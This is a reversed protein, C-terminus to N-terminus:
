YLRNVMKLLTTKGCGSPGLLVVVSGAYVTLSIRDVAPRPANEFQKSVDECVIEAAGGGAPLDNHSLNAQDQM